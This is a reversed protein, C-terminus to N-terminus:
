ARSLLLDRLTHVLIYADLGRSPNKLYYFDYELRRLTDEPQGAPANIQAWGTIGPKVRYLQRYFPIEESLVSAFELREARPGVFCIEGRLVNWLQPLADLRWRRVLRQAGNLRGDRDRALHLSYLTFPKADLGLCKGRDLLPGRTSLKLLVAALLLLPASLITVALALLWHALTQYVMRQARPEFTGMLLLQSPRLRDILIHGCLQEYATAAEEITHGGYRLQLLGAIPMQGRREMMGVVIRDPKLAAVVPQLDALTGLLKGAECPAGAADDAVFGIVVLGLDPHSVIHRAMEALVPCVGVFLIRQAGVVRLVVIGFALRWAFLAIVLAACAPVMLRLPLRFDDTVYGVLGQILLAIGVVLCLQQVLLVRSKVHIRIYLDEFYLGFLISAGALALRLLGNDALLFVVPDVNLILFTVALFATAILLVESVFLALAGVPLFVRSPRNMLRVGYRPGM